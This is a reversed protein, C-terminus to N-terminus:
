AHTDYPFLPHFDLADCYWQVSRDLDRVNLAVHSVGSLTDASM